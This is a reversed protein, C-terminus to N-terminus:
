EYQERRGRRGIAGHRRQSGEVRLDVADDGIPWEAPLGVKGIRDLFGHIGVVRYRAPFVMHEEDTVAVRVLLGARAAGRQGTARRRVPVSEDVAVVDTDGGDA